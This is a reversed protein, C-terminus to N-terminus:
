PVKGLYAEFEAAIVAPNGGNGPSGALPIAAHRPVFQAARPSPSGAFPSEKATRPDSNNAPCWAPIVRQFPVVQLWSPFPTLPATRAMAKISVSRITPPENVFEPSRGRFEM